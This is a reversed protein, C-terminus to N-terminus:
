REGGAMEAQSLKASSVQWRVATSIAVSIAVAVTTAVTTAAVSAAVAAAATTVPHASEASSQLLLSPTLM